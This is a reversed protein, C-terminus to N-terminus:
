FNWDARLHADVCAWGSLIAAASAMLAITWEPLARDVLAACAIALLPVVPIFYRGQIGWVRDADIPTWVLYFIAFLAICYALTTALSALAVRIRVERALDLRVFFTGILLLSIVPYAWSRLVTDFLGLVGILQRWLEPLDKQEFTGVVARAFHLPHDLMFGLKWVPDFHQADVGTLAALRWAAVDGSSLLTWGIAGILAPGIILALLRWCQLVERSPWRMLELLVFAVNPPKSLACLTLWLAHQGTRPPSGSYLGHLCLAAAVMAFTLAAGDANIVSRGYLAAPLMAIAVFAWRLRPVIMIAYALAATMAILGALRMLYFTTLFDLGALQAILAAAVHPLYAAPSYGESGEYFAFVPQQDPDIAARNVRGSWYDAFVKSYGLGQPRGSLRVAEFYGYDRQWRIPLVVGKRGHADAQSPIIDGQAIGTARLFHAHEDPGRLPPTAFILLAGLLVSLFAFVAAPNVRGLRTQSLRWQADRSVQSISTVHEAM